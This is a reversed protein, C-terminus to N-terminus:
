KILFRRAAEGPKAFQTYLDPYEAKFGAADFRIPPKGAKWTALVKGNDVLTDAFGMHGQIIAKLEDEEKKLSKIQRLRDIAEAVEASAQVAESISKRGFKAKIDAANVPDPEIGKQVQEWFAAEKEIMLEHLEPDAPVEYLRFDSGGILVAVDAVPYGTVIMYHQVQAQYHDPIEDTGPEGWGDASRATKIELVRKVPSNGNVAGDLNALMWGYRPHHLIEGPVIVERGTQNAYEQRILPELNRGWKMYENDEIGPAEGRKELYVQLPTKWPSVGLVAGADSGGIGKKREELWQAKDM